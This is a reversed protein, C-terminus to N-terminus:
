FELGLPTLFLGLSGEFGCVLQIKAHIQNSLSVSQLM